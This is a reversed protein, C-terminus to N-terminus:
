KRVGINKSRFGLFDNMQAFMKSDNTWREVIEGGASDYLPGFVDPGAFNGFQMVNTADESFAYERAAAGTAASHWFTDFARATSQSCILVVALGAVVRRQMSSM